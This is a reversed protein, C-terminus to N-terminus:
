RPYLNKITKLHLMIPSKDSDCNNNTHYKRQNKQWQQPIATYKKGKVDFYMFVTGKRVSLETNLSNGLAMESQCYNMAIDCLLDQELNSIATKPLKCHSPLLKSQKMLIETNQAFSVPM